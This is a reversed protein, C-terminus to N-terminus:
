DMQYYMGASYGKAALAKSIAEARRTRRNGQGGSNPNFVWGLVTSGATWKFASSGAENAAQEVKDANWRPLELVPSDFNCTGGDETTELYATEELAAKLDDRLKAYKGTLPPKEQEKIRDQERESYKKLMEAHNKEADHENDAIWTTLDYGDKYLAMTEYVTKGATLIGYNPLEATDIILTRGYYQIEDHLQM